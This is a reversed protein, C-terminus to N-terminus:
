KELFLSHHPIGIKILWISIFGLPVFVTVIRRYTYFADRLIFIFRIILKAAISHAIASTRGTPASFTLGETVRFPSAMENSLEGLRM